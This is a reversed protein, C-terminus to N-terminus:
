WSIILHDPTFQAVHIILAFSILFFLIVNLALDYVSFIYRKVLPLTFLPYREGTSAEFRRAM